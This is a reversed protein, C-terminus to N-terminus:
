SLGDEDGTNAFLSPQREAEQTAGLRKQERARLQAVSESPTLLQEPPTGGQELIFGRVATGTDHRADNPKQKDTIGERAIKDEAETIRLWNAALETSGM